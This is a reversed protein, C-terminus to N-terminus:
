ALLGNKIVAQVRGAGCGLRKRIAHVGLGQARLKLIADDTAGTTRRRGIHKGQARARALGAHVREKLMAREFEAFVGSMQLLARGSPTSSDVHQQHLYLDVGLAQFDAFLEVLHQLSRGLRDVSWAAVMSFERKTAAKMLADLGPRRDRGRAGSLQDSYTAVFIRSALPLIVPVTLVSLLPVLVNRSPEPRVVPVAVRSLLPM